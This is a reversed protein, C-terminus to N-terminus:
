TIALAAARKLGERVEIWRRSKTSGRGTPPSIALPSPSWVEIATVGAQRCARQAVLGMAVVARQEPILELFRRLYDVGELVEDETPERRPGLSWPIANWFVCVREDLRADKLLQRLNLATQDSNKTPSLVLTRQAGGPAPGPTLMVIVVKADAGPGDPDIEPVSGKARRIEAVLVRIARHKDLSPATDAVSRPARLLVVVEGEAVLTGDERTIRATLTIVPKDARM